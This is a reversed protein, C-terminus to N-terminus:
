MQSPDSVRGVFLIAGTSDDRILYLFPHDAIFEISRAPNPAASTVGLIATSAAAETGSEDTDVFVKHIVKDISIPSKATDTIGSFDAQSADFARKMGLAELADRLEMSTDSRFKPLAIEVEPWSANALWTDVAEATVKAEVDALRDRRDPLILIMSAGGEYPLKLVQVGDAHTYSEHGSRFMTPVRTESTPTLHFSRETTSSKEFPSTWHAHFYIANTLVLGMDKLPVRPDLLSPIRGSTHESVWHNITDAAKHGDPFDVPKVTGDFDRRIATDFDDNLKLDRQVWAANAVSLTFSKPRGTEMAHLQEASARGFNAQSDANTSSAPLRLLQAMEKATDSRAGMYAIGLAQTISYPSIALNGPQSRVARYLDFALANEGKVLPAQVTAQAYAMSSALLFFSALWRGSSLARATVNSIEVFVPRQNPNKVALRMDQPLM